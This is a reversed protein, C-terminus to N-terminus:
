VKKRRKTRRYQGRPLRKATMARYQWDDDGIDSMAFFIAKMADCYHSSGWHVRVHFSWDWVAHKKAADEDFEFLLRAQRIDHWIDALDNSLTSSMLDQDHYPDFTHRYKDYEDLINRIRSTVKFIPKISVVTDLYPSNKAIRQNSPPQDWGSVYRSCHSLERQIRRSCSAYPLAMATAFLQPLLDGLHRLLYRQSRTGKELLECYEVSLAYMRQVDPHDAISKKSRKKKKMM